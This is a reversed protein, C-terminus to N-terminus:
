YYSFFEVGRETLRRISTQRSRLGFNESSKPSFVTIYEDIKGGLESVRLFIDVAYVGSTIRMEIPLLKKGRLNPVYPVLGERGLYFLIKGHFNEQNYYAIAIALATGLHGSGILYDYQELKLVQGISRSFEEVFIPSSFFEWVGEDNSRLRRGIKPPKSIHLKHILSFDTGGGIFWNPRERIGPADFEFYPKNKRQIPPFLWFRNDEASVIEDLEKASINLSYKQAFYSKVSSFKNLFSYAIPRNWVPDVCEDFSIPVVAQLVQIGRFKVLEDHCVAITYRTREHSDVLAVRANDPIAPMIRSGLGHSEPMPWKLRRYFILPLKATLALGVGVAIGSSALLCIHSLNTQLTNALTTSIRFLLPLNNLVELKSFHLYGDNSLQIASNLYDIGLNNLSLEHSEQEGTSAKM